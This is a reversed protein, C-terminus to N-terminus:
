RRETARFAMIRGAGLAKPTPVQLWHDIPVFAALFGKVALLKLRSPVTGRLPPRADATAGAAPSASETAGSPPPVNGVTGRRVARRVWALTTLANQPYSREYALQLGADQFCALWESRTRPRIYHAAGRGSAAEPLVTELILITGGPRLVRALKGVAENLSRDDVQHQLVTVSVILDFPGHELDADVIDACELIVNPFGRFRARARAIVGSSIDYGVVTAGRIALAETLDGTGCGVDLVRCGSDCRVSLADLASLIARIRIKQDYGYIGPLNWGTHHYKAFRDNWYASKMDPQHEASM